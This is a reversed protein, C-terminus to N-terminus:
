DPEYPKASYTREVLPCAAVLAAMVEQLRGAFCAASRRGAEAFRSYDAIVQVVADSIREPDPDSPLANNTINWEGLSSGLLHIFPRGAAVADCVIGSGRLKFIKPDHLLLALNTRQWTAQYEGAPLHRPLREVDIYPACVVNGGQVLFTVHKKCTRLKASLAMIIAAVCGFGKDSRVQGPFFISFPGVDPPPSMGLVESPHPLVAVPRGWISKMANAFSQTEALLLVDELARPARSLRELASRWTPYSPHCGADDYILRLIIRPVKIGRELIEAVAVILEADASPIFVRDCPSTAFTRLCTELESTIVSQMKHADMTAEALGVPSCNAHRWSRALSAAPRCVREAISVASAVAWGYHRRRSITERSNKFSRIVRASAMWCGGNWRAGALITCREGGLLNAFRATAAAHHRQDDVLAPEVIIFRGSVGPSWSEGIAVM